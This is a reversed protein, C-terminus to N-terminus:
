KESETELGALRWESMGGAYISAHKIGQRGLAEVVVISAGCTSSDCYVVVSSASQLKQFLEAPVARATDPALNIAGGIRAKAFSSAPRADVLVLGPQKRLSLLDALGVLEPGLQTHAPTSIPRTPAENYTAAAVAGVVGALVLFRIGPLKDNM